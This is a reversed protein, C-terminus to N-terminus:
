PPQEARFERLDPPEDKYNDKLSDKDHSMKDSSGTVIQGPHRIVYQGSKPESRAIDDLYDILPSLDYKNSTGNRYSTGLISLCCLKETCRGVNRSSQGSQQAIAEYSPFVEGSAEWRYRELVILVALQSPNLGLNEVEDLLVNPVM